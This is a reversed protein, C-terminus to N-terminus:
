NIDLWLILTRYTNIDDPMKYLSFNLERKQGYSYSTFVVPESYTQNNSLTINKEDITYNNLKVVMKYNVTSYEHNVIRVTVNGTQGATLNTPYNSAKGDPGLIYFETFKEGEKPVVIVYATASIALIISIVLVVSLIKGTGSGMNFSEIIRNFYYKFNVNFREEELLNWRRIYAISSMVVTFISLSILIPEARIGYSTYNLVLTILPAISISLVVSLFTREIGDLDEKKPFLVSIFSYGPIFLVFLIGLIVRIFTENLIPTLSFILCLISILNVLILDLNGIKKM